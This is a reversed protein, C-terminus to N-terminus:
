KVESGPKVEKLVSTVALSGDFNEASLIMGESVLGNKFQRTIDNFLVAYLQGGICQSAKAFLCGFLYIVYCRANCSANPLKARCSGISRLCKTIRRDKQGILQSTLRPLRSQEKRFNGSCM